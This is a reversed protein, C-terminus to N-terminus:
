GVNNLVKESAVSKVLDQSQRNITDVDVDHSLEIDLEELKKQLARAWRLSSVEDNHFYINWLATFVCDKLISMGLLGEYVKDGRLEDWLRRMETGMRISIMDADADISYSKSEVDVSTEIRILSEFSLGEFEVFFQVSEDYALIDGVVLDFKRTGYEPNFDDSSFNVVKSNIVILPTVEVKGYLEEHEFRIVEHESCRNATRYMTDACYIDLCYTASGQSILAQIDSNSVSMQIDLSIVKPDVTDRSVDVSAEFSTGTFDDIDPRLVPHPFSRKHFRM